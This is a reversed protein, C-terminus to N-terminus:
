SVDSLSIIGMLPMVAPPFLPTIFVDANTLTSASLSQLSLLGCFMVQKVEVLATQKGTALKVAKGRLLM